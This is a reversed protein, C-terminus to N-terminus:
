GEQRDRLFYVTDLTVKKAVDVLDKKRTKEIQTLFDQLSREKGSLIGHYYLDILQHPRDQMERLQNSLMIQTKEIEVDSIAGARMDDLQEEIINLARKFNDIEIGSQITMLGKHSELRSAAYYALSEKERVNVFLKSHPFGGLVGNYVMLPVYDDDAISTQTRLGLNLKGQQVDLRDIVHRVDGVHKTVKTVSIPQVDSRELTLYSAVLQTVDDVDVDGVVFVDIPATRLMELFTEYLVKGNIPELHQIDGYNFLGYPEDKCMEQICREAAYRMKDDILSEIRQRLNQKETQIYQSVFGNGEMAPQKIIESLFAIGQELLPTTDSLFRENAIDLGFQLIHREGRKMVNGYFTAGYLDDLHEKIQKFSPYSKTGRRLVQPLLATQTVTEPTLPRQINVVVTNTKYKDTPLVHVHINNVESKQFLTATM